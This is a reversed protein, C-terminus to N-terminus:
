LLFILLYIIFWTMITHLQKLCQSTTFTYLIKSSIIWQNTLILAVILNCTSNKCNILCNEWRFKCFKIRRIYYHCLRVATYSAIRKLKLKESRWHFYKVWSNLFKIIYYKYLFPHFWYRETRKNSSLNLSVKFVSNIEGRWLSFM